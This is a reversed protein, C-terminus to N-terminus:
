KSKVPHHIQKVFSSNKVLAGEEHSFIRTPIGREEAVESLHTPYLVHRRSQCQQNNSGPQKALINRVGAAGACNVCRWRCYCRNRACYIINGKGWLVM